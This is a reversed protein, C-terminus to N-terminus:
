GAQDAVEKELMELWEQKKAARLTKASETFYSHSKFFKIQFPNWDKAERLVQRDLFEILLQSSIEPFDNRGLYDLDADCIIQEMHTKPTQPLRTAQIMGCIIAIDAESYNFGPLTSQAIIISEAEHERSHVMFGSDHYLAATKLLVLDRGTIQELVALREAAECVDLTHNLNHYTLNGPLENQLREVIHQKAGKFDM